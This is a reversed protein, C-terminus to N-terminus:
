GTTVWPRGREGSATLTRALLARNVKGTESRFGKPCQWILVPIKYASLRDRLFERLEREMASSATAVEVAAGISQGFEADPVGFVVCDRVGPHSLIVNEIEEPYM